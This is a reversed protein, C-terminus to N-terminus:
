WSIKNLKFKVNLLLCGGQVCVKQKKGEVEKDLRFEDFGQKAITKRADEPLGCCKLENGGKEKHYMYKKQGLCKFRDFNSEIDWGGLIYKDLIEGNNEMNKIVEKEQLFCYISDTDCYIFNEVGISEIINKQLMLRGYATIFSAYPIYYEKSEYDYGAVRGWVYVGKNNKILQKEQKETKSGFKGYASNLMLKAKATLSKNGKKKNEIKEKTYYDVFNGCRGKEAKYILVEGIELGNFSIDSNLIFGEDDYSYHGFEFYKNWFDFEVNTLVQKYGSKLKSGKLEQKIDIVEDNIINTYFYEQGSVNGVIKSLEKINASGIKFIELEYEKRKPRVYDFGVEILYVQKEKDIYPIEGYTYKRPRGYPLLMDKMKHPYSSNIDISCGNRTIDKGLYLNSAHTYGGKYSQKEIRKRDSEFSTRKDLEFYERYLKETNEEGFTIKKLEHFAISSATRRGKGIKDGELLTNIYFQEVVERLMYIDNYQYRLELDTQIHGEKRFSSYDYKENLKYYIDWVKKSLYDPFNEVKDVIIKATDMLDLCLGVKTISGDRHRQEINLPLYIEAGYVVGECQTIHYTKEKKVTVAKTYKEYINNVSTLTAMEYKFGLEELSYKIFEIDWKLNHIAIPISIYKEVPYKKTKRNKTFKPKLIDYDTEFKDTICTIFQEITQGYIMDKSNVSGLGWGYVKADINKGETKECSETDFILCDWNKFDAYKYNTHTFSKEKVIKLHIIDKTKNSMLVCM